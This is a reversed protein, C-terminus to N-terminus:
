SRSTRKITPYRSLPGDEGHGESFSESTENGTVFLFSFVNWPPPSMQRGCNTMHEGIGQFM